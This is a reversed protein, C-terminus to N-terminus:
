DIIPPAQPNEQQAELSDTAPNYTGISPDAAAKSMIAALRALMTTQNAATGDGGTIWGADGRTRLASLGYTGNTLIDYLASLGYTGHNVIAYSDGTQVTHGTLTNVTGITVGSQDAALSFGSEDTLGRTAYGWVAAPTTGTGNANDAIQDVVSGAQTGYVATADYTFMLEILEHWAANTVKAATIANDVLGITSGDLDITTDDEDLATLIRATAAWVEAPAIISDRIYLEDSTDPTFPLAKGLIVVGSNNMSLIWSDAYVNNGTEHIRVRHYQYWNTTAPLSSCTFTSATNATTVGYEEIIGAMHVNFGLSM